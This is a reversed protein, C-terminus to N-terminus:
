ESAKQVEDWGALWQAAMDHELHPCDVRKTGELAAQRGQDFVPDGPLLGSTDVEETWHPQPKMREALPKADHEAKEVRAKLDEINDKLISRNTKAIDTDWFEEFAARGKGAAEQADLLAQQSTDEVLPLVTYEGKKGRTKTLMLSQRADINSMHSIRIGGVKIGGFKVEPDNYLTMARGPYRTADEGWVSVLVRRMSLCPKYPKNNDGEFYISVPQDANENGEVRTVKITKPKVILDDANLQDSKPKITPSLDM